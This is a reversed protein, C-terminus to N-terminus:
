YVGEPDDKMDPFFKDIIYEKIFVMSEEKELKGNGNEDLEDFAARLM